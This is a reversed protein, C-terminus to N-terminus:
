ARLALRSVSDLSERLIRSMEARRLSERVHENLGGPTEHEGALLALSKDLQDLGGDALSAFLSRVYLSSRDEAVGREGLWAVVENQWEFFSSMLASACGLMAVESERDTEIIDGLGEFLATVEALPPSIVIPGRGQAISPLPTVRCVRGAPRVLAAIEEIPITAVFSAVTQEARFCVGELAASLQQPRMGLFVVDSRQAVANNDAEVTVNPYEGVLRHTVEASRPSLAVAVPKSSNSLIGRIVASSLTGVGIFGITEIKRM